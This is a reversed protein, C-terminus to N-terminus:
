KEKGGNLYDIVIYCFAKIGTLMGAEDISFDPTHHAASDEPKMTAPM